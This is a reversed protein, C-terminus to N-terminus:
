AVMAMFLRAEEITNCVACVGSPLKVIVPQHGCHEMATKYHEAEIETQAILM